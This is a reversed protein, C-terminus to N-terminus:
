NIKVIRSKLIDTINEIEMLSVQPLNNQCSLEAFSKSELQSKISDITENYYLESLDTIEQSEVFEKYNELNMIAVPLLESVRMKNCSHNPVSRIKSPNVLCIVGTDGFGDFGFSEAGVHLGAAYSQSNDLNIKDEDEKYIQGIKISKSKTHNDTFTNEVLTDIKTYLEAVIGLNESFMDGGLLRSKTVYNDGDKYIIYNSPSKKMKKIRFYESSIFEVLDKNKQGTSVVKRYTVLMGNKTIPLNNKTVFKLADQRSSEIPNLLIWYTFAKMTEYQEELNPNRLPYAWSRKDLLEVFVMVISKPIPLSRVNKMYVENGVVDFDLNGEFVDLHQEVILEQKDNEKVEVKPTLIQTIEQYSGTKLQQRLSETMNDVTGTIIDEGVIVQCHKSTADYIIKNKALSQLATIIDEKEKPKRGIVYELSRQFINM